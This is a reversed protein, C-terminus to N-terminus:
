RPVGSTTDESTIPAKNCVSTYVQPSTIARVQFEEVSGVKVNPCNKAELLRRIKLKQKHYPTVVGIDALAVPPRRKRLNEIHRYIAM